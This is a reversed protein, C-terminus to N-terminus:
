VVAVIAFYDPWTTKLDRGTKDTSETKNSLSRRLSTYVSLPQSNFSTRSSSYSVAPRTLIGQISVQPTQRPYMSQRDGEQEIAKLESSSTTERM